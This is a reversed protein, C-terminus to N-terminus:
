TALREAADVDDEISPGTADRSDLEECRALDAGPLVRDGLVARGRGFRRHRRLVFSARHRGIRRDDPRHRRRELANMCELRCREARGEIDRNTSDTREPRGDTVKKGVRQAVGHRAGVNRDEVVRRASKPRVEGSAREAKSLQVVHEGEIIADRPDGHGAGFQTSPHGGLDPVATSTHKANRAHGDPGAAQRVADVDIEKAGPPPRNVVFIPQEGHGDSRWGEAAAQRRGSREAADPWDLVRRDHPFDDLVPKPPESVPRLASEIVGGTSARLVGARLGNVAESQVTRAPRSTSHRGAPGCVM